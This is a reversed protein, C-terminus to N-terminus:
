FNNHIINEVSELAGECWGQNRSFAEGVCYINEYPNQALKLFQKRNKYKKNLPAFYHTGCKWYVFKCKKVKVTQNFIKKINQEVIEEKNSEISYNTIVAVVIVLVIIGIIILLTKM